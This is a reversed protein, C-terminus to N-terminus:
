FKIQGHFFVNTSPEGPDGNTTTLPYGVEVGLGLGLREKCFQRNYEARFVGSLTTASTNDSFTYIGGPINPQNLIGGSVTGEEALIELGGGVKFQNKGNGLTYLALVRGFKDNFTGQAFGNSDSVNNGYALIQGVGLLVELKNSVPVGIYIGERTATELNQGEKGALTLPAMYAAEAGVRIRKEAKKPLQTPAPKQTPKPQYPV